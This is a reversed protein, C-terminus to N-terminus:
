TVAHPSPFRFAGATLVTEDCRALRSIAEAAYANVDWMLQARREDTGV